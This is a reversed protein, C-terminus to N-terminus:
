LLIELAMMIAFGIMFAWIWYHTNESTRTRPLLDDMVVYIMAGAALALLIPMVPTVFQAIFITIIAFLPEVIGTFSGLLFSKPKSFGDELLPISAAAGEPFNQIAIGIALSLCSAMYGTETPNALALGCALGVAVGEPINHITVAFLFKTSQSIRTNRLGEEQNSVKHFHPILKDMLFLILGGLIFGGVVVLISFDGFQVESEEMSPVLLGFFAAAVMIGSALGIVVDNLKSSFNKNFFFVLGSGLITALFIISVSIISSLVPTM